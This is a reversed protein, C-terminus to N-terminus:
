LSMRCAPFGRRADCNTDLHVPRSGPWVILMYSAHPMRVLAASSATRSLSASDHCRSSSAAPRPVCSPRSISLSPLVTNAFFYATSALLQTYLHCPDTYNYANKIICPEERPYISAVLLAYRILFLCSAVIAKAAYSCAVATTELRRQTNAALSM